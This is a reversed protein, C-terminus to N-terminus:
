RITAKQYLPKYKLTFERRYENNYFTCKSVNVNYNDNIKDYFMSLM